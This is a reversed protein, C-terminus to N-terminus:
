MNLYYTFKVMFINEPISKLLQRVSRRFQFEGIDDENSRTQTWVFYLVSGPMYEWRLVANGRLSKYNFNPDDAINFQQAPGSGDPDITLDNLNITSNGAGYVNFRYTRPKALEKYNTFHGASILPQMYMQLSLQPNFTWNLRIGASVTNQDMTAFVYRKGYTSVAYPDDFSDVWQSYNLNKEYTPSITISVNASPRLELNTNIQWDYSHM